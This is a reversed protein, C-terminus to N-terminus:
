PRNTPQRVTGLSHSPDNAANEQQTQLSTTTDAATVPATILAGGPMSLLVQQHQLVMPIPAVPALPIMSNTSIATPILSVDSSSTGISPMIAHELIM